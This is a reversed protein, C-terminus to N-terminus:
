WQKRVDLSVIRGTLDANEQDYGVGVTNNLFPPLTNFVNQASLTVQMNSLWERADARTAYSLQLDMTTWSDVTRSPVSATDRYHNDYNVFAAAGFGRLGWSASARVRLNIPNNQTSVLDILPADPSVAQSYNFLYTGNLGLQLKGMRGDLTYRGLTDIGRTKLEAINQLRNDVIAGIPANLCNSPAGLFTGASCASQRLAPTVNRNVLYATQPDNLVNPGLAAQDIRGEYTIDFYTVSLGAGPISAPKLDLGLTWTRARESTLDPNTGFRALVTTQGSPSANDPLSLLESFSTSAVRDPLNPPRFSKVWTGRLNIASVPAWLLGFKPVAHGGVDSYHEYRGGVSLEFQRVLPIANDPGLLPLRFESFVAGIRRGLEASAGVAAGPSAAFSDFRQDRYETGLTGQMRGGPLALLPGIATFGVSRVTSDLDFVGNGGIAALTAPNTNSGDGFPNFATAPNPDALAASLAADNVAGEQLEHQREFTYAVYATATWGFAAAATLGLTFNGTDVRNETVPPGFDATSGLLVTVPGPVGTPNVYFPNTVPVLVTLPYASTTIQSVNRHTFLAEGFLDLNDTLRDNAKGFVSLRRQYPTVETGLDQDYLNPAGATLDAATLSKGNQGRPLPWYLGTNLLTINGPSGYPLDLDYGGYPTLNSTEQWRDRAQLADQQFYEFALLAGGSDWRTGLLQSAQRLDMSGSTVGGARAETLAGAFDTRTVFNVVGGIADAGYRASAGDPLVDIHDIISLPINSIDEFTGETGSPALRRGDLLVLTAGADLGRLNVGSGRASNTSAERGILLTDASPGGGFVQPLTRLLSEVTPLGTRDIDERSLELTQAGLLPQTESETKSSILVQELKDSAPPRAPPSTVHAWLRNLVSPEKARTVTLTHDNVFDFALKTGTLMTTLAESADLEGKVARTKLGKVVNFDFLVQVDAQRSFENLTVSADGAPLDFLRHSGAADADAAPLWFSLAVVAAWGLAGRCIAPRAVADKGEQM